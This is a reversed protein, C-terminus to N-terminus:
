KSGELLLKRIEKGSKALINFWMEDEIDVYCLFTTGCFTTGVYLSFLMTGVRSTNKEKSCACSLILETIVM